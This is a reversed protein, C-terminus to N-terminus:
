VWFFIFCRGVLVAGANKERMLWINEKFLATERFQLHVERSAWGVLL